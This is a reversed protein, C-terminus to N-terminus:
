LGLALAWGRSGIQRSARVIVVAVVIAVITLVWTMGTAISLAAGPNHVLTLGLLDGVLPTREGPVLQASAWVKTLQDVVFVGVSLCALLLVLRRRRAADAPPAVEGPVVPPEAPRTLPEPSTSM